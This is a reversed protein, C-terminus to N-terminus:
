GDHPQDTADQSGRYTYEDDNRDASVHTSAPERRM